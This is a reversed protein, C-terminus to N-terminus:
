QAVVALIDESKLILYEQKDIKVETGSYKAFIVDDGVKVKIKESEGIAKVEGIQPRDESATEPLVIGSETKQEQKKMKVLVNKGLPKIKM